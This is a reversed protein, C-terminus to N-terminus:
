RASTPQISLIMANLEPQIVIAGHGKLGTIDLEFHRDATDFGDVRVDYPPVGPDGIQFGRIEGSAITYIPRMASAHSSPIFALALSKIVLLEEDRENAANRFRWWKVQDPTANMAAQMLTFKSSLLQKGFFKQAKKDTFLTEVISTVQSNNRCELSGHNLWVTTLSEFHIPNVSHNPLRLTVGNCDMTVNSLPAEAKTPLDIPVLSLRPDSKGDATRVAM